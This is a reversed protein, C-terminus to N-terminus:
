DEMDMSTLLNELDFICKVLYDALLDVDVNIDFSGDEEAERLARTLKRRLGSHM